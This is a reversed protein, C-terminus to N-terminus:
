KKLGVPIYSSMVTNHNNNIDSSHHRSKNYNLSSKHKDGITSTSIHKNGITNFSGTKKNGITTHM